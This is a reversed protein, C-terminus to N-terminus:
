TDTFSHDDLLTFNHVSNPSKLVSFHNNIKILKQLYTQSSCNTCSGNDKTVNSANQKSYRKTKNATRFVAKL